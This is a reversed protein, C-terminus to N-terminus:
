MIPDVLVVMLTPFGGLPDHLVFDTAIDFRTFLGDHYNNRQM